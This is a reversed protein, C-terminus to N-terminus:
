PCCSTLDAAGVTGDPCIEVNYRRPAPGFQAILHCEEFWMATHDNEANLTSDRVVGLNLNMGNGRAVAGPFMLLFDVNGPLTTIATSAGPQGASRVQYDEVFQIRINRCNFWQAIQAETICFLDSVGMRKALDARVAVKAWTPLIMELVDDPCAGFRARYDTAAIDALNLLPAAAGRGGGSCGVGQTITAGALTVIQAIYRANSAHYHVNQILRLFNATAEPWANDALNGATICVGYCELRYPVMAACPIRLCPKNTSGTVTLIDDAETWLWPVTANSFAAEYLGLDPNYADAVTPSTPINIGGRTVGFTPLDVMGGQCTVNFFDWYPQGPACWGGAAVLAEYADPRRQRDLKARYAEIAELPSEDGLKDAWGRDISAIQVGGYSESGLRSRRRRRGDGADPLGRARTEALEGLQRMDNIKAGPEFVGPMGVSATIALPPTAPTQAPGRAKIGALSPNLQRGPHLGGLERSATQAGGVPILQGAGAAPPEEPAPTAPENDASEDGDEGDDDPGSAAPQDFQAALADFKAQMEARETAVAEKRATIKKSAEALEAARGLQATKDAENELGAITQFEAKAQDYLADLQEVSLGSLDAPLEFRGNNDPQKGM